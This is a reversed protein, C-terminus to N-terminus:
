RLNELREKIKKEIGIEAPRYFKPIDNKANLSVEITCSNKVYELAQGIALYAANSKVTSALYTTAQALPIRAEPMGINSVATMTSVALTLAAPDSNGIDESAFIVLRRAIFLPDEGGDLMVALWLLAADPDNRRMSKIYASVVQYHRDNDRDYRRGNEKVIALVDEKVVIEGNSIRSSILGLANLAIRSDGDSYTVIPSLLEDDIKLCFKKCCQELIELINKPALKKLEILQVRSSLASNIAFRPNETTAGILVFTGSEIYPLLADQQAKNFRHIEDIFIIAGTKKEVLLKECKEIIKRLEGVGGLVPSFTFLEKESQKAILHALTTKGSGPPGHLILCPINKSKLFKFKNFLEDHGLFEEFNNPRALFPLPTHNTSSLSKNEM